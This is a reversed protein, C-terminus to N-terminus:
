VYFGERGAKMLDTLRPDPTEPLMVRLHVFLDGRSGDEKPLGRAQVRLTRDSGSWEPITLRISGDLTEFPLRGGLVALDLPVALDGHLDAGDSRIPGTAAHRLILVFDSAPQGASDPPVQVAMRSGHAAGAANEIPLIRGDPTEFDVSGGHMVVSLPVTLDAVAPEARDGALLGVDERLRTGRGFLANLASLVAHAHNGHKGPAEPPDGSNSPEPSDEPVADMAPADKVRTRKAPRGFIRELIAEAGESEKARTATKAAEAPREKVDTRASAAANRLKHRDPGVLLRYAEGIELFKERAGEEGRHRDPHWQKALARYAAKIEAVTAKRDVGLVAHPDLM